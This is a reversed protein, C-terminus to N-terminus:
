GTAGTAGIAGTAGTAGTDGKDGKPGVPGTQNWTIAKFGTACKNSSPTLVKLNGGQSDYCGNITNGDGSFPLQVGAAIAVGSAVAGIAVVGAIVALLRRRLVSKLMPAGRM